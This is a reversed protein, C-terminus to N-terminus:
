LAIQEGKLELNLQVMDQNRRQGFLAFYPTVGFRTQAFSARGRVELGAPGFTGTLAFPVASVVGHIQMKGIIVWQGAGKEVCGDVSYVIDPFAAAHLQERAMMHANILARDGDSLEGEVGARKRDEARDAVLGAVPIIVRGSCVGSSDWVLEGSWGTAVVVHDHSRGSNHTLPDEFLLAELRSAEPILRFRVPAPGGTLPDLAAGNAAMTAEVDSPSPAGLGEASVVLCGTAVLARAGRGLGRRTM